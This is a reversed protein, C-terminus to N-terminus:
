ASDRPTGNPSLFRGFLHHNRTSRPLKSWTINGKILFILSDYTIIPIRLEDAKDVKTKGPKDGIVLVTTTKAVSKSWTGSHTSILTQLNHKRRQLSTADENDAALEPFVGSAAMKIGKLKQTDLKNFQGELNHGRIPTAKTDQSGAALIIRTLEDRTVEAAQTGAEAAVVIARTAVDTEGNNVAVTVQTGPAAEEPNM